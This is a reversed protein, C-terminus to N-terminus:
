VKCTCGYVNITRGKDPLRLLFHYHTADTKHCPILYATVRLKACKVSGNNVDITIM